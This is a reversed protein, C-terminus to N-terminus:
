VTIRTGSHGQLASMAKEPLTIFVERNRVALGTQNSTSPGKLFDISASIKPEMSGKGFQCQELYDLAQSINLHDLASQSALGFNLYVKDVATLFLLVDADIEKALCSSALDKDIVAEVARLSGDTERTVPIGGGGLAIVIEGADLMRKIIRSQQISKPHPSPFVRRYGRSSDEAM